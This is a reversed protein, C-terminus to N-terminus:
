VRFGLGTHVEPHEQGLVTFSWAPCLGNGGGFHGTLVLGCTMSTVAQPQLIADCISQQTTARTRTFMNPGLRQGLASLQGDAREANM